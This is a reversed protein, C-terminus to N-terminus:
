SASFSCGTHSTARGHMERALDMWAKADEANSANQSETVAENVLDGMSACISALKPNTKHTASIKLQPIVVASPGSSGTTEMQFPKMRDYLSTEATFGPMNMKNM